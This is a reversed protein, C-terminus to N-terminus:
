FWLSFYNEVFVLCTYACFFYFIETFIAFFEIANALPLLHFLKPTRMHHNLFLSLAPM